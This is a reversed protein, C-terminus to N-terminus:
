IKMNSMIEEINTRNFFAPFIDRIFIMCESIDEHGRIVDAVMRIINIDDRDYSILFILYCFNIINTKVCETDILHIDTYSNLIEAVEDFNDVIDYIKNHMFKRATVLLEDCWLILDEINNIYPPYEIQEFIYSKHIINNRTDRIINRVDM